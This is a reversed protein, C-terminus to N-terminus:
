RLQIASQYDRIRHVIKANGAAVARLAVLDLFEGYPTTLIERRSMHM